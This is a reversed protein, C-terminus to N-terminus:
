ADLVPLLNFSTLRRLAIRTGRVELDGTMVIQAGTQHAEVARRYDSDDLEVSIRRAVGTDDYVGQIVAEGAGFSQDRHLRVVLGTVTIATQPQMTRLFTAAEGLIRQQGPNISILAPERVGGALPSRSVRIQYLDHHPGGLDALAALETANPAGPREEGFDKVHRDGSIVQDALACARQAADLMRESVQRGYPQIAVDALPFLPSQGEPVVMPEDSLPLSLSLIFSGPQTSLRTNDAYLQARQPRRTPLVLAKTELASASAIVLNRLAGVAEYVQGLPAEGPPADPTLKVAVTDAGGFGVDEAVETPLRQETFAVARLAEDIQTQYDAVDESNPLVVRIDLNVRPQRPQWLSTRGDDDSLNWGAAELYGKFAPLSVVGGSGQRSEISGTVNVEM